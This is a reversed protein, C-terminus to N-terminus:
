RDGDEVLALVSRCGGITDITVGTVEVPEALEQRWERRPAARLRRHRWPQLIRRALSANRDTPKQLQM